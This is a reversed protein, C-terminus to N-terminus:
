KVQRIQQHFSTLNVTELHPTKELEYKGTNLGFVPFYPGSFVGYKSLKCATDKEWFHSVINLQESIECLLEM